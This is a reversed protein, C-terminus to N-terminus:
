INTFGTGDFGMGAGSAQGSAGGAQESDVNFGEAPGGGEGGSDGGGDGNEGWYSGRNMSPAVMPSAGGPQADVYTTFPRITSIVGGDPLRQPAPPTWGDPFNDGPYQVYVGRANHMTNNAQVQIARADSLVGGLAGLARWQIDPSSVVAGCPLQANQGGLNGFGSLPQQPLAPTDYVGQPRWAANKVGPQYQAGPIGFINMM